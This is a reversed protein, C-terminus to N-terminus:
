EDIYAAIDRMGLMRVFAEHKQRPLSKTLGDAVMSATPVWEVKIRGAEVEQRVWCSHIDVHRLKTHLKGGPNNALNVTQQNDCKLTISHDPKFGIRTFLRGWYHMSRAADSLALLEAETTSTTVTPQKSAKWDVPGGYVKCIYGASSKRGTNDGFSADSAYEVSPRGSDVNYEIALHRSHYLYVIVRDIARLHTPGPNKMFQALKATAKAADVRTITTSYQSSGIKQAFIDIDKQQATGDFPTLEELMMPTSVLPQNTLNYKAAMNSIYTDQCLWLKKQQRDRLIRIGLFWGADGHDTLEWHRHLEKEISTARDRVSPHSAILIDDVYFFIIIGDGVFVCPDEPVLKLGLKTLVTSAEQQWLKPSIRLGYLAKRLKWCRGQKAFGQPMHTYVPTPLESNLFAAVADLQHLDLDFAAVLAFIMRATKAALTAARKEEASIHQLDGRVCIRAKHKVLHGDANFKYKFVWRLPLVQISRDNPRPLDTFTSKGELNKVEVAAAAMFADRHPHSLMEKWGDPESPLDDCHQQTRVPKDANLAAAFAHRLPEPEDDDSLTVYAHRKPRRKRPETVINSADIGEDRPRRTSMHSQQYQDDARVPTPIGVGETGASIITHANTHDHRSQPTPPPSVFEESLERHLQLSDDTPEAAEPEPIPEIPPPSPTPLQIPKKVQPPEVFAGPMSFPASAPAEVTLIVENAIPPTRTDPLPQNRHNSPATMQQARELRRQRVLRAEDSIGHEELIHDHMENETLIEGLPTPMPNEVYIPRNPDYQLTEDIVADRVPKVKNTSPFWVYWANSALYGVIYGVEARPALKQKKAVETRCYALSGIVRLGSLDTKKMDPGFHARVEDWPVIWRKEHDLYTPVRNLLWVAAAILYPWLEQPLQGAIRLRRAVLAIVGGAREIPGNMEPHGAISHTVVIGQTQLWETIEKTVTTENDGHFVRVPLNLWGKVLNIFNVIALRVGTKESYTYVYHLRIGSIYFHVAYQHGNFAKDFIMIDFHVQGYRGFTNGIPRRSIQKPASALHCTSCLSEQDDRAGGEPNSIKVGDVMEEAKEITATQIHGMRKHWMELSATSIRPQASKRIAMAIPQTRSSATPRDFILIKNRQNYRVCAVPIGDKTQLSNKGDDLWRFNADRALGYSVVNVHFGPCYAVDKLLIVDRKRTVPQVVAMKANGYGLIETNGDGTRLYDNAERFTVFDARNNCVHSSAGTDLIWEDRLPHSKVSTTNMMVWRSGDTTAVAAASLQSTVKQASNHEEIKAMVWKRYAEDKFANDIRDQRDKPIKYGPPRVQENLAYCTSIKHRGGCPCSRKRYSLPKNPESPTGNTTTTTSAPTAEDFGQLTSFAARGSDADFSSGSGFQPLKAAHKQRWYSRFEDILDGIKVTEDMDIKVKKFAMTHWDSLGLSETAKVFDQNFGFKWGQAELRKRLMDWDAAWQLVDVGRRPPKTAVEMYLERYRDIASSSKSYQKELYLVQKPITDIEYLMDSTHEDVSDDIWKTVTDFADRKEKWMALDEEYDNREAVAVHMPTEKDVVPRTPRDGLIKPPDQKPNVMDWIEHRQCYDKLAKHWKTWKTEDTLKVDNPVSVTRAGM